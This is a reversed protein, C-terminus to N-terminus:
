FQAMFNHSAITPAGSKVKLAGDAGISIEAASRAGKLVESTLFANKPDCTAVRACAIDTGAIERALDIIQEVIELRGISCLILDVPSRTSAGLTIM